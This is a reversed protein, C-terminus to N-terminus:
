HLKELNYNENHSHNKVKKKCEEILQQSESIKKEIMISAKNLFRFIAFFVSYKLCEM